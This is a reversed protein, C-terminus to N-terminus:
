HRNGLLDRVYARLEYWSPGPDRLSEVEYYTNRRFFHCFDWLLAPISPAAHLPMAPERLRMLLHDVDGLLWRSRVGTAYDPQPPPPSGLWLGALGAPFDLGADIALQLSGWFRGNIEMLYPIGTVQERKFEVMAVGHWRLARLLTTAYQGAVADVPASERLVSVGGWPPKERLRRHAFLMVPEGHNCLAFVGIGEGDVQRQLMFPHRLAPTDALQRELDARSVARTVATRIWGDTTKLRSRAPKVICPYRVDDLASGDFPPTLVHTTPSPVGLTNALENLAIKDSARWFTAADPAAVQTTAPLAARRDTLIASTIDTMPLILTVDYEVSAEVVAQVFADEGDYPSPYKFAKVCYRSQAALNPHTADGVIVRYGARGLSRVAALASRQDGDTVLITRM